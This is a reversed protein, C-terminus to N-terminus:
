YNVIQLFAKIMGPKAMLLMRTIQTIATKLRVHGVRPLGICHMVTIAADPTKVDQQVSIVIFRYFNVLLQKKEGNGNGTYLMQIM